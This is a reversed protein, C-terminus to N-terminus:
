AVLFAITSSDEARAAMVSIVASQVAWLREGDESLMVGGYEVLIDPLVHTRVKRVLGYRSTGANRRLCGGPSCGHSM